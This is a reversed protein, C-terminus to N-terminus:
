HGRRGRLGVHIDGRHLGIDHLQADSMAELQSIGRKFQTKERQHDFFRLIPNHARRVRAFDLITM